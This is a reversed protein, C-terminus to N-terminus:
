AKGEPPITKRGISFYEFGHEAMVKPTYLNRGDFIVRNRMLEAMRAYDPRRFENWETTIVLGDAGQLASYYKAAITISDGYKYKLKRTSVPDYVTVQAGASCLGDLIFIAPSGRLDDTRAKFSAGWLTIKRSSISEGYYDLIKKLFDRRRHENVARIASIMSCDVGAEAALGECVALDRPLGAGGFGIGPFLFTPGIRYDSAVAERVEAIDCDQAECIDALQNMLSIRAALMVNTAYKAMEASSQSMTIFPKGTRLFPGYLEKMMERVRVDECGIIVRDPRLFDDVATGEKIFDPNVVVDFPHSTHQKLTETIKKSTGPPCTTKNVIIRYGDMNEAIEQVSGLIGSIDVHGSEDAPTGVCLFIMLSNKVATALNGSFSLREEELNRTILEELGPEHLPSDGKNLLAIRESKKDVCIVQHGNEAFCTGTVLGQYGAGIIAIKM